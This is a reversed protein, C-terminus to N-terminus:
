YYREAAARGYQQAAAAAGYAGGGYGGYDGGGNHAPPPVPAPRRTSGGYGDRAGRESGYGGEYGGGGYGGDDYERKEMKVDYGGYAPAHVPAAPAYSESSPRGYGGQPQERYERESPYGGGGGRQDEGGYDGSPFSSYPGGGGSRSPPEGRPGGRPPGGYGGGMMEEEYGGRQRGGGMSPRGEMDYRPSPNPQRSTPLPASPMTRHSPITLPAPPIVPAGGVTRFRVRRISPPVDYSSFLEIYRSGITQKHRNQAERAESITGFEVSGDGSPRRDETMGLKIEFCRLPAFFREIAQPTVDFPLGRMLVKTPSSWDEVGGGMGGGGGLPRPPPDYPTSRSYGGGSSPASRMPGGRAGGEYMDDYEPRMGGGRKPYGREMMRSDMEMRPPRGEDWQPRGRPGRSEMEMPFMMPPGNMLPMMPGSPLDRLALPGGGRSSPIGRARAVEDLKAEYVEIYRKGMHQKNKQLATQVDDKSALRVFAEGSARGEANRGFVVEEVEVDSLFEKIERDSASFPLGRLKIVRGDESIFGRRVANGLEENSIRFVEIYRTQILEKNKALAAEVDEETKLGVFGEGSPRGEHNMPLSVCTVKCDGLFTRIDKEKSSFPLGRLRVYKPRDSM